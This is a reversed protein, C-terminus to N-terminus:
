PPTWPRVSLTQQNPPTAPEPARGKSPRKAKSVLAEARPLSFGTPLPTPKHRDRLNPVRAAGSRHAPSRLSAITRASSGRLSRSRRPACSNVSQDARKQPAYRAARAIPWIGGEAASPLAQAIGSEGEGEGLGGRCRRPPGEPRGS